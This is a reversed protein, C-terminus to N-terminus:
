EKTVSFFDEPAIGSVGIRVGLHNVRIPGCSECLVEAAVGAAVQKASVLGVFDGFDEGFTDISCQCCFDAM